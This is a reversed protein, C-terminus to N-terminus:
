KGRVYDIQQQIYMDLTSAAENIKERLDETQKIFDFYKKLALHSDEEESIKKLRTKWGPIPDTKTQWPYNQLFWEVYAGVTKEPCKNERAFEKGEETFAFSWVQADIIVQDRIIKKPGSEALYKILEDTHTITKEMDAALDNILTEGMSESVESLRMFTKKIIEQSGKSKGIYKLARHSVKDDSGWSWYQPEYNNIVTCVCQFYFLALSHLIGEHRLGQHYATNRFQHLFLISDRLKEDLLGLQSSAKVKQDFSQSLAKSVLIPDNRPEKSIRAWMENENFKGQAFKHLTLELVNDILMFAFRDFNRENISLQDLALDLQDINDAFFQFV